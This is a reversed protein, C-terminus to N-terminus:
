LSLNFSLVLLYSFQFILTLFVMVKFYAILFKKFVIFRYTILPVKISEAQTTLKTAGKVNGIKTIIEKNVLDGEKRKLGKTIM